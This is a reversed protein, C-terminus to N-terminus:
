LDTIAVDKPLAVERFHDFPMGDRFFDNTDIAEVMQGIIKASGGNMKDPALEDIDVKRIVNSGDIVLCIRMEAKKERLLQQSPVNSTRLDM